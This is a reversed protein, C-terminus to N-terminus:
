QIVIQQKFNLKPMSNLISVQNSTSSQVTIPIQTKRYNRSSKKVNLAAMMKEQTIDKINKDPRTLKHTVTENKTAVILSNSVNKYENAAM